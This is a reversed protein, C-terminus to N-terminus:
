GGGGDAADADPGADGNPTPTPNGSSGGSSGGVATGEKNDDSDQSPSGSGGSTGREDPPLPQPNLETDTACAQLGYLAGAALVAVILKPARAM